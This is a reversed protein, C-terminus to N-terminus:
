IFALFNVVIQLIDRKENSVIDWNPFVGVRDVGSLVFLFSTNKDMYFNKESIKSKKFLIDM